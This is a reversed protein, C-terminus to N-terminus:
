GQVTIKLLERPGNGESNHPVCSYCDYEASLRINTIRHKGVGANHTIIVDTDNRKITYSPVPYGNASCSITM